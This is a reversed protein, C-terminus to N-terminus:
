KWSSTPFSILLYRKLISNQYTLRCGKKLPMLQSVSALCFTLRENEKIMYLCGLTSVLWFYGITQLSCEYGRSSCKVSAIERAPVNPIGFIFMQMSTTVKVFHSFCATNRPATAGVAVHQVFIYTHLTCVNTFSQSIHRCRLIQCACLYLQWKKSQYLKRIHALVNQAKLVKLKM